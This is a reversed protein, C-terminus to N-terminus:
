LINHKLSETLMQQFWPRKQGSFRADGFTYLSNNLEINQSKEEVFTRIHSALSSIKTSLPFKAVQLTTDNVTAWAKRKGKIYPKQVDSVTM